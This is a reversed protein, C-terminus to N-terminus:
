NDQDLAKRIIGITLDVHKEQFILAPRFRVTTEGCGGVHLGNQLCDALLKDRETSNPLDFACLVGQGRVNSIQQPFDSALKELNKLLYDGVIKTKEVLGDRKIIEVVKELVVLKTPEGM